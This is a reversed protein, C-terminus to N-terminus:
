RKDGILWKIGKTKLKRGYVPEDMMLRSKELERYFRERALKVQEDYNRPTEKRKMAEREIIIRRTFDVVGSGYVTYM